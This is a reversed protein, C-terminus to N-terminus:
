PNGHSAVMNTQTSFCCAGALDRANGNRQRNRELPLGCGPLLVM